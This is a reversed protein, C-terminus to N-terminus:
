RLETYVFSASSFRLHFHCQISHIEICAMNIRKKEGVQRMEKEVTYSYAILNASIVTFGQLM